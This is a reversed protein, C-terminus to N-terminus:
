ENSLVYIGYAKFTPAVGLFPTLVEIALFGISSNQNAVKPILGLLGLMM